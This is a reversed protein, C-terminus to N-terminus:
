TTDEANRGTDVVAADWLGSDLHLGGNLFHLRSIQVSDCAATSSVTLQYM